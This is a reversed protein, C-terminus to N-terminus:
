CIKFGQFPPLFDENELMETAGKPAKEIMNGVLPESREGRAIYRAAAGRSLYQDKRVVLEEDCQISRPAM